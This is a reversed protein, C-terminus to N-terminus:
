LLPLLLHLQLYPFCGSSYLRLSCCDMHQMMIYTCTSYHIGAMAMTTATLSDEGTGGDSLIATVTICYETGEQLGTVTYVTESVAIDTIHDSDTFCQTNTNSYSVSYSTATVGDALLVTWSIVLSTTSTNNLSVSLVGTIYITNHLATNAVTDCFVNSSLYFSSSVIGDTITFLLIM